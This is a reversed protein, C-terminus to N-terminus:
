PRGMGAVISARVEAFEPKGPNLRCAETAHELAEADRGMGHLLLALNYRFEANHPDLRVSERWARLAGLGDGRYKLVQGLWFAAMASDPGGERAGAALMREGEAIRRARVLAMGLFPKVGRLWPARRETEELLALAEANRTWILLNEPHTFLIWRYEDLTRRPRPHPEVALVEVLDNKAVSVTHAAMFEAAEALEAGRWAYHNGVDRTRQRVVLVHTV